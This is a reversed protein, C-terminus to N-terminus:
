AFSNLRKFSELCPLAGQRRVRKYPITHSGSGAGSSYDVKKCVAVVKSSKDPM